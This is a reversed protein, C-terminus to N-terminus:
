TGWWYSQKLKKFIFEDDRGCSMFSIFGGLQKIEGTLRFNVNLKVDKWFM